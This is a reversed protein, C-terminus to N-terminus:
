ILKDNIIHNLSRVLIKYLMVRVEVRLHMNQLALAISQMFQTDALQLLM